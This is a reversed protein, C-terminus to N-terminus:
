MTKEPLDWKLFNGMHNKKAGTYASLCRSKLHVTRSERCVLPSASNHAVNSSVARATIWWGLGELAQLDPLQSVLVLGVFYPSFKPFVLITLLMNLSGFHFYEDIYATYLTGQGWFLRMLYLVAM